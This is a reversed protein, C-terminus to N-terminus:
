TVEFKNFYASSNISFLGARGDIAEYDEVSTSLAAIQTNSMKDYLAASITTAAGNVSATVAIKYWQNVAVGSVPLAAEQILNSGDFRHIQFEGL